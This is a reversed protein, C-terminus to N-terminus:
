EPSKAIDYTPVWFKTGLQIHQQRLEIQGLQPVLRFLVPLLFAHTRLIRFQPNPYVHMGLRYRDKPAVGEGM